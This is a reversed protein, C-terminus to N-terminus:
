WRKKRKKPQTFGFDGFGEQAQKFRKKFEPTQTKAATKGIFTKVKGVTTYFKEHKLREVKKKELGVATKLKARGELRRREKTLTRHQALLKRTHNEKRM